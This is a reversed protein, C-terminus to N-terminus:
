LQVCACFVLVVVAQDMCSMCARYFYHDFYRNKLVSRLLKSAHSIFYLCLIICEKLCDLSLSIYEYLYMLPCKVLLFASYTPSTSKRPRSKEVVRYDATTCM